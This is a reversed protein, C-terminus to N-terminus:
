HKKNKKRKWKYILESLYYSITSYILQILAIIGVIIGGGLYGIVGSAIIAFIVSHAKDKKEIEQLEFARNYTAIIKCEKNEIELLIEDDNIRINGRQELMKIPKDQIFLTRSVLPDYDGPSAPTTDITFFMMVGIVLAILVWVGFVFWDVTSNGKAWTIVKQKYREFFRLMLIGGLTM